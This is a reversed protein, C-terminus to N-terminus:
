EEEAPFYELIADAFLAKSKRENPFENTWFEELELMEGQENKLWFPDMRAVSDMNELVVHKVGDNFIFKNTEDLSITRKGEEEDFSWGRSLAANALAGLKMTVLSLPGFHRLLSGFIKPTITQASYILFVLQSSKIFGGQPSPLFEDLDKIGHDPFSSSFEQWHNAITENWSDPTVGDPVEGFKTEKETEENQSFVYTKAWEVTAKKHFGANRMNKQVSKPQVSVFKSFQVTDIIVDGNQLRMIGLMKRREESEGVWEVAAHVKEEFPVRRASKTKSMLKAILEAPIANRQDIM